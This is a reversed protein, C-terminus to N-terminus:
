EALEDYVEALESFRGYRNNLSALQSELELIRQQLKPVESEDYAQQAATKDVPKPQYHKEKALKGIVNEEEWVLFRKGTPSKKDTLNKKPFGLLEAMVERKLKGTRSNVLEVLQETTVEAIWKELTALHQDALQSGNKNIM